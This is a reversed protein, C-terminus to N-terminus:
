HWAIIIRNVHIDCLSLSDKESKASPSSAMLTIRAWLTLPSLYQNCLYNYIWSGYSWSWSPKSFTSYFGMISCCLCTLLINYKYIIYITHLWANWEKKQKELKKLYLTLVILPISSKRFIMGTNWKINSTVM